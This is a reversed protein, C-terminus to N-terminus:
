APEKKTLREFERGAYRACLIWLVLVVAVPLALRVMARLDSPTPLVM